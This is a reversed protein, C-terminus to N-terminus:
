EQKEGPVIEEAVEEAPAREVSEQEQQKAAMERLTEGLSDPMGQLAEHENIARVDGTVLLCVHKKSKSMISRVDVGDFTYITDGIKYSCSNLVTPSMESKMSDITSKLATNQVNTPRFARRIGAVKKVPAFIKSKRDMPASKGYFIEHDM